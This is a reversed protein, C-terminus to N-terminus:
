LKMSSKAKGQFYIERRVPFFPSLIFGHFDRGFATVSQADQARENRLCTQASPEIGGSEGSLGYLRVLRFDNRRCRRTGRCGSFVMGEPLVSVGFSFRRGFCLFIGTMMSSICQLFLRLSFSHLSLWAESMFSGWRKKRTLLLFVVGCLVSFSMFRSGFLITELSGIRGDPGGVFCCISWVWSFAGFALFPLSLVIRIVDRLTKKM